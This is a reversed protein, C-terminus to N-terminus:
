FEDVSLVERDVVLVVINIIIVIIRCIKRSIIIIFTEVNNM